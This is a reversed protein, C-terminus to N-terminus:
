IYLEKREQSLIRQLENHMKNRIRFLKVKVNSQSLNSVEAIEDTSMEKYYFLTILTSEEPNLKDFLHKLIIKQENKDIANINEFIEDLTYNQILQQDIGSTELKKKRIRSISTNYVIRYLWTSFKSEKKFTNLSQFAKLFVDQAVEEADERNRVIRMAITYVLDKHKDILYAFSKHDGSLVKEIYFSDGKYNM